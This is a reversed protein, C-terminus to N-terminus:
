AAKAYLAFCAEAGAIAGDIWPEGERLGAADIAALLTRWEGPLHKAGLYRDPLADAVGRALLLGGLRSGEIVYLAGWAAGPRGPLAFPLPAPFAEGLDGLDAALLDTRRRWAPLDAHTALVAEAAPLARAHACLFAAYSARDTLDHAGFAADVVDHAPATRARLRAVPTM